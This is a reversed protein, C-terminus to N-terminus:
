PTLAAIRAVAHDGAMSGDVPTLNEHEALIKGDDATRQSLRMGLLDALHHVQRHLDAGRDDPQVIRPAGADLFAHIGQGGVAFNEMAVHPGAAHDGLDGADHSRAGAARDVAGAMVSKTKM